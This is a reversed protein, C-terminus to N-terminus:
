SRVCDCHSVPLPNLMRLHFRVFMIRCTDIYIYICMLLPFGVYHVQMSMSSEGMFTGETDVQRVLVLTKLQEFHKVFPIYM